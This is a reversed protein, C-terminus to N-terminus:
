QKGVDFVMGLGLWTWVKHILWPAPICIAQSSATERFTNWM